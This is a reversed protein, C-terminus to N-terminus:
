TAEAVLQSVRTRLTALRELEASVDAARRKREDAGVTSARRAAELSETATQQLVRLRATYTDRLSRQVSRITDQNEKSTRASAEDAFRRLSQKASQRVATLRREKEGKLAKVGLIVGLGISVPAIATLGVMGGLMNFMLIGSYSGRLATLATGAMSGAPGEAKSLTAGLDRDPLDAIVAASAEEGFLEQVTHAMKECGERLLVTNEVVADRVAKEIATSLEDWASSPDVEDILANGQEIATRLDEKLRYGVEGSLDAVCDALAQQWRSGTQRLQEIRELATSLQEAARNATAPDLLVAQESSFAAEMQDVSEGAVALAFRVRSQEVRAVRERVWAVLPIFGSETNLDTSASQSAALRIPSSVPFVPGDMGLSRVHDVTLTSVDRWSPYFDTKPMVVAVDPCARAAKRLFEAEGATLEQSADTVFLVADAGNLAALTRAGHASDLGGVGPTDVLVLGESLLRRPLQIEVATAPEDSEALAMVESRLMDADLTVPDLGPRHALARRVEGFRLFTPVATAVDDDVPCLGTELLANALSSKGQKFEGVVVVHCGGQGLRAEEVNLLDVLDQRGYATAAQRCTALVEAAATSVSGM